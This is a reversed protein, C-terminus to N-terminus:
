NCPLTVTFPYSVLASGTKADATINFDYDGMVANAPLDVKVPATFSKGGGLPISLAENVILAGNPDWGQATVAFTDSAKACNTLTASGSISNGSCTYSVSIKACSSGRSIAAQASFSMGIMGVLSVAFLAQKM